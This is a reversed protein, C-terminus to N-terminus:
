GLGAEVKHPGTIEVDVRKNLKWAEYLGIGIIFLGMINEFGALFPVAMSIAFLAALMVAFDSAAPEATSVDTAAPSTTVLNAPVLADGEGQGVSLGTAAMEEEAAQQQFAELVGPMYTSAISCYTLVVALSQYVWGGRGRSGYRVAAGVMLGILIAVLGFEYGTLAGIAYYIASGVAAAPVGLCFARLFRGGGSTSDTVLQVGARCTSCIVKDGMAYYTDRLRTNCQACCTEQAEASGLDVKGSENADLKM